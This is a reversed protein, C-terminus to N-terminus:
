EGIGLRKNGEPPLQVRGFYSTITLASFINQLRQVAVVEAKMCNVACAGFLCSATVPVLSTVTSQRARICLCLTKQISERSLPLPKLWDDEAISRGKQASLQNGVSLLM